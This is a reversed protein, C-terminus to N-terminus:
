AFIRRGYLVVVIGFLVIAAGIWDFPDPQKGDVGWGWLLAGIL